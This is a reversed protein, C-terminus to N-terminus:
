KDSMKGSKLVYILYKERLFWRFFARFAKKPGVEEESKAVLLGILHSLGFVGKLNRKFFKV